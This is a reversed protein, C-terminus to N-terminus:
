LFMKITSTNLYEEKSLVFAYSGPTLASTMHNWEAVKSLKLTFRKHSDRCYLKQYKLSGKVTVDWLNCLEAVAQGGPKLYISSDGHSQWCAGDGVRICVCVCLVKVTVCMRFVYAVCAARQKFHRPLWSSVLKLSTTNNHLVNMPFRVYFRSCHQAPKFAVHSTSVSTTFASSRNGCTICFMLRTLLGSICVTLTDLPLYIPAITTIASNESLTNEPNRKTCCANRCVLFHHCCTFRKKHGCLNQTFWHM